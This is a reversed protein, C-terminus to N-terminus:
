PQLVDVLTEVERTSNVNHGGIAVTDGERARRLLHNRTVQKGKVVQSVEKPRRQPVWKARM